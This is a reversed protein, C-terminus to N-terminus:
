KENKVIEGLLLQWIVAKTGGLRKERRLLIVEVKVGEACAKINKRVDPSEKKFAFSVVGEYRGGEGIEMPESIFVSDLVLSSCKGFALRTVLCSLSDTFLKQMLEEAKCRFEPAINTDSVIQLYDFFETGKQMAQADFVWLQGDAIADSSQTALISDMMEKKRFETQQVEFQERNDCSKACLLLYLLVWISARFYDRM